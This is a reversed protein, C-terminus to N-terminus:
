IDQQDKNYEQVLNWEKKNVLVGRHKDVNLFTILLLCQGLFQKGWFCSVGESLSTAAFWDEGTFWHWQMETHGETACSCCSKLSNM